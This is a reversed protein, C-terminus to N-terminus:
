RNLPFILVTFAILAAAGLGAFVLFATAARGGNRLRRYCDAVNADIPANDDIGKQYSYAYGAVCCM